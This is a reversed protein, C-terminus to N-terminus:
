FGAGCWANLSTQLAAAVQDPTIAKMSSHIENDRKYTTATQPSRLITMPSQFPGTQTPDTPGFIAVGPKKLAAAIHLPGSDVGIVATAQRTAHILGAISSCHIHLHKYPELSTAQSLPINVVLPMSLIQALREYHEIPWQKSVWGAFPNALIFPRDPLTGEPRGAPLWAEETLTPAGAAAALQLCRQVRHPGPANVATTYFYSAASERANAKDLGIFIDPNAVRGALASQILGQFDIALGPHISRLRKWSAALQAISKREFSIVSDLHPNGEFLPLWKRAAVWVLRRNPFSLKLSAAAPLAHIIDGMAGLRVILIPSEDAM